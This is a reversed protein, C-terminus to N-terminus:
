WLNGLHALSGSYEYVSLQVFHLWFIPWVNQARVLMFSLAWYFIKDEIFFISWLIIEIRCNNCLGVIACDFYKGRYYQVQAQPFINADIGFKHQKVDSAWIHEGLNAAGWCKFHQASFSSAPHFIFAFLKLSIPPPLSPPLPRFSTCGLFQPMKQGCINIIIFILEIGLTFHSLPLIYLGWRDLIYM